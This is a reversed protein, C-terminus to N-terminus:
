PQPDDWIVTGDDDLYRVSYPHARSSRDDGDWVVLLWQRGRSSWITGRKLEDDFGMEVRRWRKAPVGYDHSIMKLTM